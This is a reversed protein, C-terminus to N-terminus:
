AYAMKLLDFDYDTISDLAERVPALPAGHKWAQWAAATAESVRSRFDRPFEVGGRHHLSNARDRVSHLLWSTANADGDALEQLAEAFDQALTDIETANNM